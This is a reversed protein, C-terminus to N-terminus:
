LVLVQWWRYRTDTLPLFSFQVTHLGVPPSSYYRRASRQWGGRSVKSHLLCALQWIIYRGGLINNRHYFWPHHYPPSMHYSHPLLSVCASNQRPFGLYLSQKSSRSKSPLTINFHINFLDNPINHFPNIQSPISVLLPIKHNRYHVLSQM